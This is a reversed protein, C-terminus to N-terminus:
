KEKMDDEIVEVSEEKNESFGENMEKILEIIDEKSMDTSSGVKNKDFFEGEYREMDVVLEFFRVADEESMQKFFEVPDNKKIVDMDNYKELISFLERAKAVDSEKYSKETDSVLERTESLFDDKYKGLGGILGKETETEEDSIEFNLNMFWIIFILFTVGASVSISIIKKEKESRKKLNDLFSFM